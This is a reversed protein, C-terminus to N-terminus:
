SWQKVTAQFRSNKNLKERLEAIQANLEDITHQMQLITDSLATISQQSNELLGNLTDITGQLRANDAHLRCVNERDAKQQDKFYKILNDIESNAM